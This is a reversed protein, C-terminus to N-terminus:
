HDSFSDVLHLSKQKKNKMAILMNIRIKTKQYDTAISIDEKYTHLQHLISYKVLKIDYWCLVAKKQITSESLPEQGWTSSGASHSLRCCSVCSYTFVIYGSNILYKTM